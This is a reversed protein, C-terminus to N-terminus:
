SGLPERRVLDHKQAILLELKHRLLTLACLLVEGRIRGSSPGDMDHRQVVAGSGRTQVAVFTLGVPNGDEDPEPGGVCTVSVAVDSSPCVRLVGAAMAAAVEGCVASKADLLAGDVGLLEVKGAKAYSVVGGLFVDGGGPTDALLTALAGATCSEATVIKVDARQALTVVEAALETVSTSM